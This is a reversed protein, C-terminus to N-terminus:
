QQEGGEPPHALRYVDVMRLLQADARRAAEPDLAPFMRCLGIIM